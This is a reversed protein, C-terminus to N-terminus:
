YIFCGAALAKVCNHQSGNVVELSLIQAGSNRNALRLLVLGVVLMKKRGEKKFTLHLISWHKKSPWM